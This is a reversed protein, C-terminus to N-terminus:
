WILFGVRCECLRGSEGKKFHSVRQGLYKNCLYHSKLAKRNMMSEKEFLPRAPWNENLWCGRQLGFNSFGNGLEGCKNRVRLVSDSSTGTQVQECVMKIWISHPGDWGILHILSSWHPRTREPSAPTSALKGAERWSFSAPMDIWSWKNGLIIVSEQSWVLGDGPTKTASCQTGKEASRHAEPSLSM